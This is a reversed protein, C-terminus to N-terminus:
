DLLPRLRAVAKAIVDPARAFCLRLCGEGMPGFASGPALGVKSEHLARQAFAFSDTLGDIRLFAYFAGEPRAVAVRRCAQLADIAVNRADHCRAVFEAVFAEGGRVAAIGAHQLFTPSGSTNFEVLKEMEPLLDPPITMWGLRWGTMAWSKSFSNVVILRDSPEGQALFSPATRNGYVIRGYVEDAIVWLGRRRAFDMIEAIEGSSAVWGTPNSPSNIFIGRTRDDCAASLRDLDLQWGGDERPDLSVLRPEGGMISVAAAINPWVPGIIVLNDGADIVAQAVLMLGTMGSSTVLIRDPEFWQGYLGAQYDALAERLEPLGAKYTYFTHGARLADTAAAAIFEPTALDGEGYWLPIVDADGMGLAAIQAIQSTPLDRIDDRIRM